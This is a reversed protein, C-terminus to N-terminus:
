LKIKDRARAELRAHTSWRSRFLDAAAPLYLRNSKRNARAFRDKADDQAYVIYYIFTCTVGSIYHKYRIYM